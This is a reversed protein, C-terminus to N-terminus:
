AKRRCFINKSGSQKVIDYVWNIIIDIYYFIELHFCLFSPIGHFPLHEHCDTLHCPGSDDGLVMQPNKNGLALDGCDFSACPVIDVIGHQALLQLLHGSFRHCILAPNLFGRFSQVACAVLPSQHKGSTQAFRSGIPNWVLLYVYGCVLM